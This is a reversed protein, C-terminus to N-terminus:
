KFTYGIYAGAYFSDLSYNHDNMYTGVLPQLNFKKTIDHYYGFYFDQYTNKYSVAQGNISKNHRTNENQWNCGYTLAGKDSIKQNLQIWHSIRHRSVDFRDEYIWIRNSIFWMLSWDANFNYFFGNAIDPQYIQEGFGHTDSGRSYMHMPMRLQPRFIWTFKGDASTFLPFQFAIIADELVFSQSRYNRAGGPALVTTWRPGIMFKKGGGFNYDFRLQSWINPPIDDCNRTCGASPTNLTQNIAAYSGNYHGVKSTTLQGFYSINMREYFRDFHTKQVEQVIPAVPITTTKVPRAIGPTTTAPTDKKQPKAPLNTRRQVSRRQNPAVRRKQVQAMSTSCISVGLVLLFFSKMIWRGEKFDNFFKLVSKIRLM